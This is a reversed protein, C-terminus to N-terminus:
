CIGGLLDRGGRLPPLLRSVANAYRDPAPAIGHRAVRLRGTEGTVHGRALIPALVRWNFGM